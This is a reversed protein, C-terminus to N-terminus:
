NFLSSRPDLLSSTDIKLKTEQRKLHYADNLERLFKDTEVSIEYLHRSIDKIEQEDLASTQILTTLSLMTSIPRRIVHGVDFIMQEISAIYEVLPTIDSTAGYWVTRGNKDIEPIAQMWRWRIGGDLVIRYQFSIAEQKQYAERMTSNYKIKDDEYLTERIKEPNESVEEMGSPYNIGDTGRNMFLIKTRGSEEIEFMYTNGPVQSTIKRILQESEKIKEEAKIRESIDIHSGLMVETLEGNEDRLRRARSWIWIWEGNQHRLRFINEYIGMSGRKLFDDFVEIARRRDDPHLREEWIDDQRDEWEGDARDIGLMGFYQGSHWIRETDIHYEWAGINSVAIISKYREQSERLKETATKQATIDYNISLYQYVKGHEDLFPVTTADVWYLSGDKARNCFEGRYPKGSQMAKGMEIFYDPSHVGSWLIDHHRGLLEELSYKTGKCFNDNVFIFRAEADSISVMAALDLAYRFDELEVKRERRELDTKLMEVLMNILSREETLFKDVDTNASEDLYVVEVGVKTGKATKAEARIFTNSQRYNPTAFESESYYILAATQEPYQFGKPLIYVIRRFTEHPRMEDQLIRSVSYLTKLEKVREGLNHLSQDKEKEAEERRAIEHKLAALGFNLDRTAYHQVAVITLFPIISAIWRSYPYFPSFPEPLEGNVELYAFWVDVGLTLFSLVIGGRWGLLFGGTLIVGAQLLINPASIGGSLYCSATVIIWIMLMLSRGTMRTKGLHNLSLSTATILLSVSLFALWLPWSDPYLLLASLYMLGLVTAWVLTMVFVMYRQYDKKKDPPSLFNSM